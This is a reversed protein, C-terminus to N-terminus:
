TNVNLCVARYTTSSTINILVLQVDLTSFATACGGAYTVGTSAGNLTVTGGPSAGLDVLVFFSSGTAVGPMAAILNAATPLVDTVNGGAGPTRNILGSLVAATTYTAAGATNDATATRFDRTLGGGSFVIGTATVLNGRVITIGRNSMQPEQAILLTAFMGVMFIALLVMSLRNIWHKAHRM